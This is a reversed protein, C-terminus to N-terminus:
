GHCWFRHLFGLLQAREIEQGRLRRDVVLRQGCVHGVRGEVPEEELLKGVHRPRSLVIELRLLIIRLRVAGAKQFLVGLEFLLKLDDLSAESLMAFLSGSRLHGHHVCYHLHLLLNRLNHGSTFGIILAHM